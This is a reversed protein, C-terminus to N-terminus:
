RSQRPDLWDSSARRDPTFRVCIASISAPRLVPDTAVSFFSAAASPTVISSRAQRAPEPRRIGAQAPIGPNAPEPRAPPGAPLDPPAPRRLEPEPASGRAGGRRGQGM